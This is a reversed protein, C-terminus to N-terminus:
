VLFGPAWVAYSYHLSLYALRLGALLKFLKNPVRCVIQGSICSISMVKRLQSGKTTNLSSVISIGPKERHVASGKRHRKSLGEDQRTVAVLLEEKRPWGEEDDAM